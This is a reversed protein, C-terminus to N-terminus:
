SLCVEELIQKVKMEGSEYRTFWGRCWEARETQIKLKEGVEQNLQINKEYDGKIWELWKGWGSWGEIRDVLKSLVYTSM